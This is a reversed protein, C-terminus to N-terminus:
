WVADLALIRVYYLVFPHIRTYAANRLFLHVKQLVAQNLVQKLYFLFRSM